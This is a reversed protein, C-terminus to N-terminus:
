INCQGHPVCVLLSSRIMKIAIPNKGCHNCKVRSTRGAGFRNGELILITPPPPLKTTVEPCNATWVESVVTPETSSVTFDPKRKSQGYEKSSFLWDYDYNSSNFDLLERSGDLCPCECECAGGHPSEVHPPNAKNAEHIESFSAGEKTNLKVGPEHGDTPVSVSLVYISHTQSPNQPDPDTSITVNVQVRKSPSADATAAPIEFVKVTPETAPTQSAEPKGHQIYVNKLAPAPAERELPEALNAGTLEKSSPALKHKEEGSAPKEYLFIPSDHQLEGSKDVDKGSVKAVAAGAGLVEGEFLAGEGSEDSSLEGYLAHLEDETTSLLTETAEMGTTTQGDFTSTEDEFEPVAPSNTSVVVQTPSEAEHLLSGEPGETSVHLSGVHESISFNSM